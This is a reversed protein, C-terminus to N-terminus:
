LLTEPILYLRKVTVTQLNLMYYMVDNSTRAVTLNVAYCSVEDPARLLNFWTVVPRSLLM